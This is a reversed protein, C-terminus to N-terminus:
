LGKAHFLVANAHFPVLYELTKRANGIIFFLVAALDRHLIHGKLRAAVGNVRAHDHRVDVITVCAFRGVEAGVFEPLGHRVKTRAMQWHLSAFREGADLGRCPRLLAGSRPYHRLAADFMAM